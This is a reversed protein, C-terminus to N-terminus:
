CSRTAMVPASQELFVSRQESQLLRRNLADCSAGPQFYGALRLDAGFMVIRPTSDGFSESAKAAVFSCNCSELDAPAPCNVWVILAKHQAYALDYADRYPLLGVKKQPPGPTPGPTPPVPNVPTVLIKATALQNNQVGVVYVWFPTLTYPEVVFDIVGPAPDQARIYDADTSAVLADITLSGAPAPQINHQIKIHTMRGVIASVTAPAMISPGPTPPTQMTALMALTLIAKM